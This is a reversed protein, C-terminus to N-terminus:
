KVVKFKPYTVKCIFIESVFYTFLKYFLVSLDISWLRYVGVCLLCFHVNSEGVTYLGTLILEMEVAVNFHQKCTLAVTIIIVIFPEM